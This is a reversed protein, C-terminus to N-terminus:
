MTDSHIKDKFHIQENMHLKISNFHIVKNSQYWPNNMTQSIEVLQPTLWIMRTSIQPVTRVIFYVFTYMSFFIGDDIKTM